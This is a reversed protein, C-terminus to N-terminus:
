FTRAVLSLHPLDKDFWYFTFVKLTTNQPLFIPPDKEKGKGNADTDDDDNDVNNNKLIIYSLRMVMMNDLQDDNEFEDGM